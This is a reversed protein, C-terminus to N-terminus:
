SDHFEPSFFTHNKNLFTHIEQYHTEDYRFYTVLSLDLVQPPQTPSTLPLSIQEKQYLPIKHSANIISCSWCCTRSSYFHVSFGRWIFGIRRRRLRRLLSKQQNKAFNEIKASRFNPRSCNASGRRENKQEQGLKRAALVSFRALIILSFVQRKNHPSDDDHLYMKSIYKRIETSIKITNHTKRTLSKLICAVHQSLKYTLSKIFSVLKKIIRRYSVLINDKCCTIQMIVSKKKILVFKILVNLSFDSSFYSCYLVM